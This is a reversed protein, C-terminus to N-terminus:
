LSKLVSSGVEDLGKKLTNMVKNEFEEQNSRGTNNEFIDTHVQAIIEDVDKKTNQITEEAKTMTNEDAVLDSIGISFGNM